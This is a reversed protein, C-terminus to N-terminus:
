LLTLPLDRLLLMLSSELNTKVTDGYSKSQGWTCLVSGFPALLGLIDSVGGGSANVLRADVGGAVGGVLPLLLPTPTLPFPRSDNDGLVRLMSPESVADSVVLLDLETVIAISLDSM